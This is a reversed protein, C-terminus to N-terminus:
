VVQEHLVEGTELVSVKVRDGHKYAYMAVEKQGAKVINERRTAGIEIIMTVDKDSRNELILSIAPKDAKM